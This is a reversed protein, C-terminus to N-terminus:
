AAGPDAELDLAHTALLAGLVGALADGSGATATWTPACAVEWVGGAADAVYTTHGKLLVVARFREAAGLASAAPATLVDARHRERCPGTRGRRDRCTRRGRACARPSGRGCRRAPRSGAGVGRGVGARPWGDDRGRSAAAARARHAAAHRPLAGHGSGHAPGS